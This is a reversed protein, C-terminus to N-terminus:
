NFFFFLLHAGQGNATCQNKNEATVIWFVLSLCIQVVLPFGSGRMGLFSLWGSCFQTSSTICWQSSGLIFEATHKVHLVNQLLCRKKSGSKIQNLALNKVDQHISVECVRFAIQEPTQNGRCHFFIKITKLHFQMNQNQKNKSNNTVMM